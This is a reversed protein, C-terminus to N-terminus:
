HMIIILLEDFPSIIPKTESNNLPGIKFDLDSPLSQALVEIKSWTPKSIKSLNNGVYQGNLGLGICLAQFNTHDYYEL